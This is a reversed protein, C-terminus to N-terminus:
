PFRGFRARIRGAVPSGTFGKGSGEGALPPPHPEECPAEEIPEDLFEEILDLLVDPPRDGSAHCHAVFRSWTQTDRDPM